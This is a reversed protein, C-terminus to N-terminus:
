KQAFTMSHANFKSNNCNNRRSYTLQERLLIAFIPSIYLNSLAIHVIAKCDELM